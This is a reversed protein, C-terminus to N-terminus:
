INNKERKFHDFKAQNQLVLNILTFNLERTVVGLCLFTAQICFQESPQIIWLFRGGNFLWSKEDNRTSLGGM